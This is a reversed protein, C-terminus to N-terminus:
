KVCSLLVNAFMKQRGLLFTYRLHAEADKFADPLENGCTLLRTFHLTDFHRPKLIAQVDGPRM